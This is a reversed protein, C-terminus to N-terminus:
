DAAQSSPTRVNALWDVVARASEERKNVLSHTGDEILVCDAQPSNIAAKTLDGCIDLLRTHTELTGGLALMPIKIQPALDVLNYREDPGHKDLYASAGFMHPIPFDVRFVQDGKGEAELSRCLEIIGRFEDQDPSEMYYRYSLRVPSIPVVVQVREDGATAAYYAVKVAGMSHGLIGIRRYGQAWLCDIGAKLDINCDDLIEYANGYYRGNEPDRWIIDHGRTNFSLCPFGAGSLDEATAAGHSAYFNTGSGHVLLMADVPSQEPPEARPPYLAGVASMGDETDIRILDVIM